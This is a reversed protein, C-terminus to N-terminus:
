CGEVPAGEINRLWDRLGSASIFEAAVILWQSASEGKTMALLSIRRKRESCAGCDQHSQQSRPNGRGSLNPSAIVVPAKAEHQVVRPVSTRYSTM